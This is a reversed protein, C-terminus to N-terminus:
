KSPIAHPRPLAVRSLFSSFRSSLHELYPSNLRCRRKAGSRVRFYLEDTPVTFCRKFDIGLAPLGQGLADAPPEVRELLHYREDRNDVVRRWIDSGKPTRDRLEGLTAVECLLINPLLKEPPPPQEPNGFRLAFDQELDCDQTLVLAYPHRIIEIEPGAQSPLSAFSQRVQVLDSIIEAQRLPEGEGIPAYVAPETRSTPEPPREAM